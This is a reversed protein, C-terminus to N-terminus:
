VALEALTMQALGHDPSIALIEALIVKAADSRGLEILTLAKLYLVDVDDSRELLVTEYAALEAEPQQLQGYLQGVQLRVWYYDPYKKLLTEYVAIAAAYQGLETLIQGHLELSIPNEPDEALTTQCDSLARDYDKAQYHLRCRLRLQSVALRDAPVTMLLERAEMPRQERICLMVKGYRVAINQPDHAIVQNYTALALEPQKSQELMGVLLATLSPNRPHRKLGEIATNCAAQLEGLQRLTCIKHYIAYRNVPNIKLARDLSDDAETYRELQYLVYGRDAWVHDFLPSKELVRDYAAIAVEYRGLELLMDGQYHWDDVTPAGLEVVQAFSALAAEFNRQEALVLGRERWLSPTRPHYQLAEEYNAYAEEWRKLQKLLKGRQVWLGPSAQSPFDRIQRDVIALDMEVIPPRWNGNGEVPEPESRRQKPNKSGVKWMVGIFLLSQALTQVTSDFGLPLLRFNYHSSSLGALGAIFILQAYPKIRHGQHQWRLPLWPEVVAYSDLGPLLLLNLGFAILELRFWVFRLSYFNRDASTSGWLLFLLGATVIPGAIAVLSRQWRKPLYGEGVTVMSGPLSLSLMVLGVSPLIWSQWVNWYRWPYATLKFEQRTKASALAYIAIAHGCEHLLRGISWLLLVMWPSIERTIMRTVGSATVVVGLIGWIPQFKRRDGL